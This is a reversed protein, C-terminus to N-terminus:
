GALWDRLMPTMRVPLEYSARQRETDGSAISDIHLGYINHRGIYDLNNVTGSRLITQEPVTLHDNLLRPRETLLPVFMWALVGVSAVLLCASLGQQSQRELEGLRDAHVHAWESNSVLPAALVVVWGIAFAITA